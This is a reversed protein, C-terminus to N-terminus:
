KENKMNYQKDNKELYKSALQNFLLEYLVDFYINNLINSSDHRVM